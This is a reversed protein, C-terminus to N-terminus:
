TAAAHVLWVYLLAGTLRAVRFHPDLLRHLEEHTFRRFFIEGSHKGERPLLPLRRYASLALKGGPKLVRRMEATASSRLSESPLHELMQSALVANAWGDRVPLCAANGQVLLVRHGSPLKGRLLRLSELSHDVLVCGAGSRVAPLSMRGTGCGVEVLRTGAQLRLPRLTLPIEAISLLRLALLRDYQKAESDRQRREALVEPVADSAPLMRLIGDSGAFDRGCAPCVPGHEPPLPTRDDPCCLAEFM